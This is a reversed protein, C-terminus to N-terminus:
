VLALVTATQVMFTPWAPSALARLTLGLLVRQVRQAAGTDWNLQTRALAHVLELAATLARVTSAPVSRTASTVMSVLCVLRAVLLQMLALCAFTAITVQGIDRSTKRHARASVLAPSVRLAHVVAVAFVLPPASALALSPAPRAMVPPWASRATRAPGTVTLPTACALASQM